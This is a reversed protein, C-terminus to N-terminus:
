TYIYYSCSFSLLFSDLSKVKEYDPGINGVIFPIPQFGYGMNLINEAIRLHAIWTAM